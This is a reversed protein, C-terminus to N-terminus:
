GKQEPTMNKFRNYQMEMEEGDDERSFRVTSRM